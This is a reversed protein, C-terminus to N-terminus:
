KGNTAPYIIGNTNALSTVFEFRNSEMFPNLDSNSHKKRQQWIFKELLSSIKWRIKDNGKVRGEEWMQTKGGHCGMIRYNEM